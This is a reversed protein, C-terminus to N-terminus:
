GSLVVTFARPENESTGEIKGDGSRISAVGRIDLLERVLPIPELVTLMIEMENASVSVSRLMHIHVKGQLRGVWRTLAQSNGEVVARLRVLGSIVENEMIEDADDVNGTQSPQDVPLIVSETVRPEQAKTEAIRNERFVLAAHGPGFRIEDGDKLNQGAPGVKTQNVFCGNKSDMDLLLFGENSRVIQAHERSVAPDDIIIDADQDRGFSM